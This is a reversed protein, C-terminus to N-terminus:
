YWFYTNKEVTQHKYGSDEQKILSANTLTLNKRVGRGGVSETGKSEHICDVTLHTKRSYFFHKNMMFNAEEYEM